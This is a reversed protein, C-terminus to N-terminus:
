FTWNKYSFDLNVVKIKMFEQTLQPFKSKELSPDDGRNYSPALNTQFKIGNSYDINRKIM